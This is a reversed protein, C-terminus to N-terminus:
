WSMFCGFVSIMFFYIYIDYFFFIYIYIYIYKQPQEKQASSEFANKLWPMSCIKKEASLKVKVNPPVIHCTIRGCQIEYIM